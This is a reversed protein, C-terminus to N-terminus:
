TLTKRLGEPIQNFIREFGKQAATADLGEMHAIRVLRSTREVLTGVASRNYAGKIFDGEWHGPILRETVEEPREAIRLEDPM